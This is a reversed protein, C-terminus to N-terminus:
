GLMVCFYYDIDWVRQIASLKLEELRSTADRTLKGPSASVDSNQTEMSLVTVIQPSTHGQATEMAARSSSM